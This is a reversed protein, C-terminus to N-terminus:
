IMKDSQERILYCKMKENVCKDDFKFIVTEYKKSKQKYRTRLNRWLVNKM